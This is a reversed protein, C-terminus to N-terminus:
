KKRNMREIQRQLHEERDVAGMRSAKLGAALKEWPSPPTEEVVKITVFDIFTLQAEM